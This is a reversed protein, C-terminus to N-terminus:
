LCHKPDRTLAKPKLPSAKDQNSTHSQATNKLKSRIIFPLTIPWLLSAVLIFIWAKTDFKNAKFDSLFAQLVIAFTIGAFICYGIVM